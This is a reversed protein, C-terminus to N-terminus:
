RASPPRVGPHIRYGLNILAETNFENEHCAEEPLETMGRVRRMPYVITWPRTFVVPDEITVAYHITDADILTFREVMHAASSYFNGKQDLWPKDGVNTVNVVLTNGEWRARSDGVWLRIGTGVHPRTTIPVIRYTHAREVLFLVHDPSQLIEFRTPTHFVRPLGAVFCATNPEVYKKRNDEAHQRGWAQYPIMGDPPDVIMSPGGNDERTKPHAEIDETGYGPARWFGQLDPKGDSTRPPNFSAARELACKHFAASDAPCAAQTQGHLLGSTTVVAAATVVASALGFHRRNM